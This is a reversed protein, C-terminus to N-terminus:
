ARANKIYDVFLIVDSTQKRDNTLPRIHRLDVCDIKLTQLQHKVSM